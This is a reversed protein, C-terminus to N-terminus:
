REEHTGLAEMHRMVAATVEAPAADFAPLQLEEEKAFHVSILAHLGHLLEQLLDVDNVDARGLREIRAVIARHDHIMPEAAHEYGVLRNWEPYLIAEEAEAHPMLSHRLFRMVGDVREARETIPLRPVERAAALMDDIRATLHAHERRFSETPRM